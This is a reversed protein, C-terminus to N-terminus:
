KKQFSALIKDAEDMVSKKGESLKGFPQDPPVAAREVPIRVLYSNTQMVGGLPDFRPGNGILRPQWGWERLKAMLQDDIAGAPVQWRITLDDGSPPLLSVVFGGMKEIERGLDVAKQQESTLTM